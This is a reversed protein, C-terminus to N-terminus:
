AAYGIVPAFTVLGLIFAVLPVWHGHSRGFDFVALVMVLVGLTVTTGSLTTTGITWNSTHSVWGFLLVKLIIGLVAVTMTVRRLGITAVVVM